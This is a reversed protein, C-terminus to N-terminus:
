TDGTSSSYGNGQLFVLYEKNVEYSDAFSFFEVNGSSGKLSDVIRARVTIGCYVEHENLHGFITDSGLITVRAVVEASDFYTTVDEKGYMWGFATAPLLLLLAVLARM